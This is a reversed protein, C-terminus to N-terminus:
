VPQVTHRPTMTKSGNRISCNLSRNSSRVKLDYLERKTNQIFNAIIPALFYATQDARQDNRQKSSRAEGQNEDAFESRLPFGMQESTLWVLSSQDKMKNATIVERIQELRMTTDSSQLDDLKRAYQSDTNTVVIGDLRKGIIQM